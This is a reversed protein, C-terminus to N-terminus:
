PQLHPWARELRCLVDSAPVEYFRGIWGTRVVLIDRKEIVCGQARAADLLDLHTFTEARDLSRKGRHRAMDILVGRGVVGREAIPLVSAKKLSGITTTADYGNWIQGTTGSTGSRTTSPRDRCSCTSGTTRTTTAVARSRPMEGCSSARTWSRGHTRGLHPEALGPRDGGAAIRDAGAPHVGRRHRREGRRAHVEDTTLYNLSGVEDDAGWKGWNSPPNSGFLESITRPASDDTM